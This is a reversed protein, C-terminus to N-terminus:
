RGAPRYQVVADIVRDQTAADLGTHFPLRVLRAAVDETVPCSARLPWRTGMPSAHLPVYHFVGNVGRQWLYDIFHDRDVATPLLMYFMHAPHDCHPPVHPLGVGHGHAWDTLADAYRRWVSARRQQIDVAAELQAWLFAGLLDSPLFSSGVDVWTYKDVQGRLFASRNTGKERLIEARAVLQPDNILLAGGEGCSINKTEHFSLTSLAGFSGLPRGRYRGFLGHANDEVVTVGHRQAVELIQDMECAVGAYHVVVIAKTNPTILAEIRREDINLTDRRIDVFVPVAGRLVWANATSVFTFSPVIVEDGPEVDLLLAALELADTCSTTLLARSAGTISELAAHCRRTFAGDGSFHGAEAAQQLYEVERGTLFPRNFGIV